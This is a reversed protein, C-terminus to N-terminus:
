LRVPPNMRLEKRYEERIAEQRRRLARGETAVGDDAFLENVAFPAAVDAQGIDRIEERLKEPRRVRRRALGARRGEDSRGRRHCSSSRRGDAALVV